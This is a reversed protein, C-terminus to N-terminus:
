FGTVFFCKANNRHLKSQSKVVINRTIKEPILKIVNLKQM